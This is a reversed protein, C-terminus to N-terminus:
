YDMFYTSFFFEIFNLLFTSTRQVMTVFEQIAPFQVQSYEDEGDFIVIFLKIPTSSDHSFFQVNRATCWTHAHHDKALTTNVMWNGIVHNPLTHSGVGGGQLVPKLRRNLGWKRPRVRLSRLATVHVQSQCAQNEGM